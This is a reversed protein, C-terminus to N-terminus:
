AVNAIAPCVILLEAAVVGNPREIRHFPHQVRYRRGFGPRFDALHAHVQHPGHEVLLAPLLHTLLGDLRGLALRVTGQLGPPFDDGRV